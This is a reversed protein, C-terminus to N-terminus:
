KNLYFEYYEDFTINREHIETAIEIGVYRYHWSEYSYGTIEEKGEPYRLIYGYKYSNNLMWQYAETEKFSDNTDYYDAVDIAYGTEHESSGARAAYADAKRIGFNDKRENWLKDQYNYTRYSSLILITYGENKADNSLLKFAEYADKNLKNGNYSYSLSVEVIDPAEYSKDLAHYKNVLMKEKEETKTTQLNEYYESDRNVNVLSIIENFEKKPNAKYYDLYRNLNKYLFYEEKLIKILDDNKEETLLKDLDSDKLKEQLLKTEDLTYNIQLLRYEYTQHYKYTKIAKISGFLVLIIIIILLLKKKVQKKLKVKAM